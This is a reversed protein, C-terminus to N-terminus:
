RAPGRRVVTGRWDAELWATGGPGTVTVRITLAGATRDATLRWDRPAGGGLATRAEEVLTPLREYPLSRLDFRPTHAADAAFVVSLVRDRVVVSLAQHSGGGRPLSDVARRLEGRDLLSRGPGLTVTSSLSTVVTTSPTTTTSTPASARPGTAGHGDFLPGRCAMIVATAGLLLGVLTLYGAARPEPPDSPAAPGPASPIDAGAARDEWQPTPRKVIRVQYPRDPPYQVVVVDRPRYDALDVVHIHQRIEVRYAPADDPAVTLDFRVPVDTDVGGDAKRDEIVALATVPALAAERARRPAGALLLLLGYAAPLALGVVFLPVSEIVGGGVLAALSAGIVGGTLFGRALDAVAPRAPPASATITM